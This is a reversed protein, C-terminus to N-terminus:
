WGALLSLLNVVSVEGDMGSTLPPAMTLPFPCSFEQSDPKPLCDEAPVVAGYFLITHTVEKKKARDREGTALTGGPSGFQASCGPPRSGLRQCLTLQTLCSLPGAPM